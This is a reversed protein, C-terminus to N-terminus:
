CQSRCLRQQYGPLTLRASAIPGPFTVVYRHHDPMVGEDVVTMAEDFELALEGIEFRSGSRTPESSTLVRVDTSAGGSRIEIALHLRDVQHVDITRTTTGLMLALFDAPGNCGAAHVVLPVYQDKTFEHVRGREFGVCFSPELISEAVVSGFSQTIGRSQEVRLVSLPVHILHALKQFIPLFFLDQVHDTEPSLNSPLVEASAGAVYLWMGALSVYSGMRLGYARIYPGCMAVLSPHFLQSMRWALHDLLQRGWDSFSKNPPFAVWLAVAFLDIGDYTPSNYEDVDGYKQFRSMIGAARATGAELLTQDSQDVGVRATLWAHMLNPNTYWKPIRDEPEGSVCRAISREVRAVFGSDLDDAHTLLIVSLICGLFQRWNPDYHRWEIAQHEPPDKQEASVRYTGDWPQGPADYQHMLVERLALTAREINGNELDLFAGLATERVVHSNLASWDAGPTEGPAFRVLNVDGDWLNEHISRLADLPTRMGILSGKVLLLVLRM